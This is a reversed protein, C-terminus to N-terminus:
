QDPKIDKIMLQTTTTGNFFIDELTYCLQLPIGQAIHEYDKSRNFAIGSMKSHLNANSDKVVLRLHEHKKGVCRSGGADLVHATVFLPAENGPGFPQFRSLNKIFEPTIQSFTIQSDINISPQLTEEDIHTTVYKEFRDTFTALNERKMSLGAAYTHGGFSQLLDRCSNIAQYIDFGQISRASGSIIGENETLVISPRYYQETLRSAVIGVIGKHWTPDYVVISHKTDTQEPLVMDKATKTMAQDADKREDNYGELKTSMDLAVTDDRTVLLEVVEKGSQMRGGANIRPGIKFVIDSITIAHGKANKSRSNMKTLKNSVKSIKLIQEIGKSPNTNLRKLGFYALIRNEGTIPVIDSAISLALLDLNDYLINLSDQNKVLLAHMLKYGVGCGSLEKYPYTDDARKSDLVAVAKPLEADTTHHDCIIFDIGLSTAYDIKKVAKIGCDLAIILTFNHEKAFDIGKESIGYGEGYRDPIYYDLLNSYKRLIRYVLAVATTGDVDYDGYILIKENRQLAKNLRDVAKDMDKIGMPDFLQDLDPKFFRDAEEVTTVGRDVLLKALIPDLELENALKTQSAEQEPTLSKFIWQNKM